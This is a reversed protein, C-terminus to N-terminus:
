FCGLGPCVAHTGQLIPEYQVLPTSYTHGLPVCVFTVPSDVHEEHEKPDYQM